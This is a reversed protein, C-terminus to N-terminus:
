NFSQGSISYAGSRIAFLLATQSAPAHFKHLLEVFFIGSSKLYGSLLVYNIFIGPFVLM